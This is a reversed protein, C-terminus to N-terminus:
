RRASTSANGAAACIVAGTVAVAVIAAILATGELDLIWKFVARGIFAGIVAGFVAAALVGV